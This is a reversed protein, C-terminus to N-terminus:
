VARMKCSCMVGGPDHPNYDTWVKGSLRQLEALTQRQLETYLDEGEPPRTIYLLKNDEM